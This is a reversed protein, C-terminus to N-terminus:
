CWFFEKQYNRHWFCVERRALPGFVGPVKFSPISYDLYSTEHALKTLKKERHLGVSTFVWIKPTKFLPSFTLYKPCIRMQPLRRRSSVTEVELRCRGSSTGDLRRRGCIRIQWYKAGTKYGGCFEQETYQCHFKCCPLQLQDM